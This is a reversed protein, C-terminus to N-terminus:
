SLLLLCIFTVLAHIASIKNVLFFKWSEGRKQCSDPNLSRIIDSLKVMKKLNSYEFGTIPNETRKKKFHIGWDHRHQHRSVWGLSPPLSAESTRLSVDKGQRRFFFTRRRWCRRRPEARFRRSRAIASIPSPYGSNGSQTAQRWVPIIVNTLLCIDQFSFM